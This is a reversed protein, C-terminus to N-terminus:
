VVKFGSAVPPEHGEPLWVQRATDDSRRVIELECGTTERVAIECKGAYASDGLIKQLTSYRNRAAQVVDEAVDRDQKDAPQIEIALPLGTVDSVVHRKRGKMKKGADYGVPGGQETTKVTQSDILGVTPTPRRNAAQRWFEFLAEYLRELTGSDRLRRFVSWVATWAPFDKPIQRWQCGTRVIYFIADIMRRAPIEAKRGRPDRAEILLPELVAWEADTLNSPYTTPTAERRHEPGYRPPTQPAPASPARRPKARAFGMSRLERTITIGSVKKGRSAMLKVLEVM